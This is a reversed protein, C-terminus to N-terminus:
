FFFFFIMQLGSFSAHWCLWHMVLERQSREMTKNADGEGAGKGWLWRMVASVLCHKFLYVSTLQRHTHPHLTQLFVLWRLGLLRTKIRLLNLILQGKGAAGSTCNSCRLRPKFLSKRFEEYHTWFLESEDFSGLLSLFLLLMSGHSMGSWHKREFTLITLAPSSVIDSKLYRQRHGDGSNGM